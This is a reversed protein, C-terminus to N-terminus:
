ESKHNLRMKIDADGVNLSKHSNLKALWDHFNKAPVFLVADWPTYPVPAGANGAPFAPVDRTADLLRFAANKNAPRRPDVLVDILSKHLNPDPFEIADM